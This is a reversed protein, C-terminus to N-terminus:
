QENQHKFLELNTMPCNKVNAGTDNQCTRQQTQGSKFKKDCSSIETENLTEKKAKHQKEARSRSNSM